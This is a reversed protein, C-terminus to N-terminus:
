RPRAHRSVQGTHGALVARHLLGFLSARHIGVGTAGPRWSDYAMAMLRRGALDQGELRSVPAGLERAEDEGM